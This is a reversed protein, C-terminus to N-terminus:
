LFLLKNFHFFQSGKLVSAANNGMEAIVASEGDDLPVNFFLCSFCFFQFSIVLPTTKHM